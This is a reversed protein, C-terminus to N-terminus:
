YNKKSKKQFSFDINNCKQMDENEGVNKEKM